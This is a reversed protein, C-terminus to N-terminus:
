SPPLIDRASTSDYVLELAWDCIAFTLLLIFARCKVKIYIIQRGYSEFKPLVVSVVVM